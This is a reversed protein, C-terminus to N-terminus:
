IIFAAPLPTFERVLADIMERIVESEPSEGLLLLMGQLQGLLHAREEAESPMNCAPSFDVEGRLAQEITGTWHKALETNM